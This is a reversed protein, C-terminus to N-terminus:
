YREVYIIKSKSSKIFYGNDSYRKLMYKLLTTEKTLTNNIYKIGFANIKRELCEFAEKYAMYDKTTLGGIAKDIVM